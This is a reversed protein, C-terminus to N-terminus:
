EHRIAEVPDLGAAKFAPYLTALFSILMTASGIWLLDSVHPSFPLHTLYYVDPDLQFLEYRDFLTALVWGLALGTSAGIAGITLGQLMFIRAIHKPTAGLATLTGIEKTKDAVMLILMSIINLAAVVVILGVALALVLKETNLAQMFDKNQDILDFVFWDAGFSQELLEKTDDIRELPDVRLEIRSSTEGARLTSRAADLLVYARQSDEQFHDSAYTGVVEFVRSRPRPAWPTLTMEPVVLRVRDGPVVGLNAALNVGLLIAARGSNTAAELRTFHETDAAGLIVEGHSVPEIGWVDAYATRGADEYVLMGHTRLVAAGASVGEIELMAAITDDADSFRDDMRHQIVLHASGSHIRARADEVFGANTALAIVLAATGVTVGLVSILTIASVFTRGRHFRLYRLALFGEFDLM